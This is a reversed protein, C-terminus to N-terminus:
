MFRCLSANVCCSNLSLNSNPSLGSGIGQNYLKATVKYFGSVNLSSPADCTAILYQHTFNPNKMLEEHTVYRLATGDGFDFTYYSGPYNTKINNTDININFDNTTCINESSTNGLSTNGTNFLYNYSNISTIGSSNTKKIEIYSTESLCYQSVNLSTQISESFM